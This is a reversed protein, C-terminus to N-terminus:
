TSIDWAVMIPAGTEEEYTTGYVRGGRVVRLWTNQPVKATGVVIGKQDVVLWTKSEEGVRQALEIWLHGDEAPMIRSFAPKVDPLQARLTARFKEHTNAILTDRESDTLSVPSHPITIELKKQAQFSVGAIRIADNLGFYLVQDVSLAFHPRVGHPLSMASVSNDTAIVLVEPIPLYAVSDDVVTGNWDVLRVQEHRSGPDESGPSYAPSYQFLIGLDTAGLFVYPVLRVDGPSEPTLSSVFSQDQPSFVSLRMAQFDWAYLSDGPGAYISPPRVFEGPGRGERGIEAVPMGDISFMRVGKFGSDTVYLLGKSDVAISRINGFLVTDGAAEDGIRFAETLTITGQVHGLDGEDSSQNSARQCAGLVFMAVALTILGQVRQSRGLNQM